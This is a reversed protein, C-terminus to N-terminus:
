LNDCVDYLNESNTFKTIKLRWFNMPHPTFCVWPNFKFDCEVYKVKVNNWFFIPYKQFDFEDSAFSDKYNKQFHNFFFIDFSYVQYQKCKASLFHLILIIM